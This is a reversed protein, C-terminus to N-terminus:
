KLGGPMRNYDNQGNQTRNRIEAEWSAKDGPKWGPVVFPDKAAAWSPTDTKRASATQPKETCAALAAVLAVTMPLLIPKM